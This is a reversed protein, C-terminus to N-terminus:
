RSAATHALALMGFACAQGQAAEVAQDLHTRCVSASNVSDTFRYYTVGHGCDNDAYSQSVNTAALRLVLEGGSCNPHAVMEVDSYRCNASSMRGASIAPGERQVILLM